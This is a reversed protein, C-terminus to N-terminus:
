RRGFSRQIRRGLGRSRSTSLHPRRSKVLIGLRKQQRRAKSSRNKQRLLANRSRVRSTEVRRERSTARTEHDDPRPFSRTDALSDSSHFLSLPLGSVIGVGRLESAPTRGDRLLQIAVKGLVTPDDTASGGPGLISKTSSSNDCDGHGM